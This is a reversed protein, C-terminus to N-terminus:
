REAKCFVYFCLRIEEESGTEGVGGASRCHEDGVQRKRESGKEGEETM